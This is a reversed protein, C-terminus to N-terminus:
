QNLKTAMVAHIKFLV